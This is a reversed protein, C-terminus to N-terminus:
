VIYMECHLVKGRKEDSGLNDVCPQPIKETLYSRHENVLHDIRM